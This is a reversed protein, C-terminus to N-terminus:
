FSLAKNLISSNKCPSFIKRVEDKGIRAAEKWKDINELFKNLQKSFAMLDNMPSVLMAYKGGGSYERAEETDAAICANGLIINEALALNAHPIRFYSVFCHSQMVLDCLEYVGRIGRIRKDSNMIQQLEYGWYHYGFCRLMM